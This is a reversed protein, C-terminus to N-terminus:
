SSGGSHSLGDGLDVACVIIFVVEDEGTSYFYSIVNSKSLVVLSKFFHDKFLVSIVSLEDHLNDICCYLGSLIIRCIFPLPSDKLFKSLKIFTEKPNRLLFREM